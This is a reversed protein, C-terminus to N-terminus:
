VPNQQNVKVLKKALEASLLNTVNKKNKRSFLMQCNVCITELCNAHFILIKSVANPLEHLNDGISVIQM